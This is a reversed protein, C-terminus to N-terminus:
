DIEERRLFWTLILLPTKYSTASTCVSDSAPLGLALHLSTVDRLGAHAICVSGSVPLGLALHLPPSMGSGQM